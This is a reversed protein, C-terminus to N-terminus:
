GRADRRRGPPQQGPAGAVLVVRLMHRCERKAQVIGQHRRPAHGPKPVVRQVACDELRRAQEVVRPHQHRVPPVVAVRLLDDEVVIELRHWALPHLTQRREAPMVSALARRLAM